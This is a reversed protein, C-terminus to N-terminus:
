ESRNPQNTVPESVTSKTDYRWVMWDGNWTILVPGSHLRGLAFVDGDYCNDVGDDFWGEVKLCYGQDHLEHEDHNASLYEDCEDCAMRCKAGEPADCVMRGVWDAAPEVELRHTNTSM